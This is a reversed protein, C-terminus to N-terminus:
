TKSNNSSNNTLFFFDKGNEVVLDFFEKAGDILDNNLYVTGDLDAVYFKIKNFFNKDIMVYGECLQM